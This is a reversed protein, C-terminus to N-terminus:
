ISPLAFAKRIAASVEEIAERGKSLVAPMYFFGHMTGAYPRHEVSVGADRLKAAYADGEDRLPDCENTLIFAPPLNSLDSVLLPRAHSEAEM